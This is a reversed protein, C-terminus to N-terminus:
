ADQILPLQRYRMGTAAFLANAIAPAVPPVALEGAGGPDARSVILEIEIKPCDAMRPLRLDGFREPGALGRHVSVAASTAASMGFVLGGIIQARVIGPHIVRGVDAVAFLRDVQVRGGDGIRAEALVAIHSGTMSCVALGQNSGQAGGQWGGTEAVKTLCQALRPNQGLMAMRVSFPDNGTMHAVEDVFSETVFANAGFARGRWDGVPIGLAAPHHDLAHIPIDYPTAAGMIAAPEAVGASAAMAAAGTKGGFIRADLEHLAAPTAVQAFLAGIRGEATTRAAVKVVTAPRFTDRRMEEGRSRMLQVPRKLRDALTAAHGVLDTEYRAGFAGGVMMPHVVIRAADIGLVRAAAAAALGPVQTGTWVQVGNGDIQVTVSATEVAAHPALGVRYSQTLVDAGAFAGGIDGVASLREGRDFAADLARAISRDNAPTGAVVFTPKAARLGENAAWWNTAAVAVWRETEVVDTVGTVKEAAARDISKLRTDGVPGEAIAAYVMDPLRIDAAFNASGDVKSPLDLRPVETAVLRNASGTRWAVDGPLKLRAAEAAVEGFRMREDGRWVFGGHTDCARWDADWREAAASCLLARAAAGADRLVGEFGRVSTSGGTAMVDNRRDVLRAPASRGLGEDWERMLLASAYLPGAHAAEVAVTRWDAGLEDAIIQAHTTFVGHGLEVQPVVIAVHGDEGIKVFGGLVHEGPATNLGPAYARPWLAFGVVLGM